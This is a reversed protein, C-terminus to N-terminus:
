ARPVTDQAGAPAPRAVGSPSPRVTKRAAIWFARLGRAAVRYADVVAPMPDLLTLYAFARVRHANRLLAWLQRTVPVRRRNQWLTDLYWTLWIWAVGERYSPLDTSQVGSAFTRYLATPVDLGLATSLSTARVVRPDV